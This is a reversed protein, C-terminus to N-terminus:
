GRAVEGGEPETPAPTLHADIRARIEDPQVIDGNASVFSSGRVYPRAQVLLGRAEDREGEAAALRAKLAALEAQTVNAMYNFGDSM